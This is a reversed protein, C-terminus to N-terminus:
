KIARDPKCGEGMYIPFVYIYAFYMCSLAGVRWQDSLLRWENAGTDLEVKVVVILLGCAVGCHPVPALHRTATVGHSWRGYGSVIPNNQECNRLSSLVERGARTTRM